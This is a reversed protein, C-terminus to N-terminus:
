SCNESARILTFFESLRNNIDSFVNLASNNFASLTAESVYGDNIGTSLKFANCLKTLVVKLNYIRLSPMM